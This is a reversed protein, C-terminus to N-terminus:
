AYARITEWAVDGIRQVVPQQVVPMLDQPTHGTPHDGAWLWSVAIGAQQFPLHDSIFQTIVDERAMIHLKRAAALTADLLARALTGGNHCVLVVPGNGIMDVNMVGRLAGREGHSLHALYYRSGFLAGTPGKVRREEGVWEAFVIPVRMRVLRALRALELVAAAGSGNDNAGRTPAVTDLHGGVLVHPTDADYGPPYALVNDGTGAAVSVGQSTGAPLAVRQRVVRYGLDAFRRAVFDAARDYGASGALRVGITNVLTADDAMVRAADFREVATTPSPHPSVSPTASPSAHPIALRSPTCAALGILAAVAFRRM